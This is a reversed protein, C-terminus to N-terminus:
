PEFDPYYLELCSECLGHTVDATGGSFLDLSLHWQGSHPDRGRRCCGCQAILGREDIFTHRSREVVTHRESLPGEARLYFRLLVGDFPKVMRAYHSTLRQHVSPTNCEGEFTVGAPRHGHLLRSLATRAQKRAAGRLWGLYETDLIDPRGLRQQGHERAGREWAANVHM